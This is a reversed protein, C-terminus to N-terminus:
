IQDRFWQKSIIEFLADNYYLLIVEGNERAKPFDSWPRAAQGRDSNLFLKDDDWSYTLDVHGQTQSFLRRLRAPIQIRSQFFEGILGGVGGGAIIMAWMKSTLLYAVVGVVFLIAMTSNM